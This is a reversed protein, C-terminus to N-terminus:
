QSPASVFATAHTDCSTGGPICAQPVTETVLLRYSLASNGQLGGVTVDYSGSQCSGTGSPSQGLVQAGVSVGAPNCRGQVRVSWSSATGAVQTSTIGVGEFFSADSQGVLTGSADRAEIHLSETQGDTTPTLSAAWNGFSNCAPALPSSTFGGSLSLTLGPVCQGSVPGSGGPAYSFGIRPNSATGFYVGQPVAQLYAFNWLDDSEDGPNWVRLRVAFQQPTAPNPLSLQVGQAYAAGVGQRVVAWTGSTDCSSRNGTSCLSLAWRTLAVNAAGDFAKVWLLLPKSSLITYPSAQLGILKNGQGLFIRAAAPQYLPDGYFIGDVGSSDYQIAEGLTRGGFLATLLGAPGNGTFFNFGGAFAHDQSGWWAIAGVRDIAEAAYDGETTQEPPGADFSGISAPLLENGQDDLIEVGDLDIFGLVRDSTDGSGGRTSIEVRASTAQAPISDFTNPPFAFTAWSSNAAQLSVSQAPLPNDSINGQSDTLQYVFQVFLQPTTSSTNAPNRYRLRLALNKGAAGQLDYVLSLRIVEACPLLSGTDSGCQMSPAADLAGFHLYQDDTFRVGDQYGGGTLVVPPTVIGSEGSHGRWGQPFFGYFGVPFSRLQSGILGPAAGVCDTNLAQFYDTSRQACGTPDSTNRCLPTCATSTKQWHTMTGFDNFGAQGAYTYEQGLYLGVGVALNAAGPVNANFTSEARCTGAGGSPACGSPENNTLDSFLAAASDNPSQSVFKGSIGAQEAALTRDILTKTRDKTIAEVRGYAVLRDRSPSVPPVEGGGQYNGNPVGNIVQNLWEWFPISSPTSSIIGFANQPNQPPTPFIPEDAYLFRALHYDFSLGETAIPNSANFWPLPEDVFFPPVGRIIAIHTIPSLRSIADVQSSDCPSPRQIQPILPCICNALIAKRAGLFQDATAQAGTPLQVPCLNSSAIGRKQAYYNAIELAETANVNYIVLTEQALSLTPGQIAAPCVQHIGPSENIIARSIITLDALNCLGDGNVDCKEYGPMAGVSFYPSLGVLSRDLITKDAVNVIGDNNVDGCQCADGIGDPPSGSGIGGSDKQDPNATYPCNDLYDPVGDGDTDLAICV